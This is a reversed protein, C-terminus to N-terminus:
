RSARCRSVPLPSCDQGHFTAQQTHAEVIHVPFVPAEGEVAVGTCVTQPIRDVAAAHQEWGPQQLGSCPVDNHIAPLPQGREALQGGVTAVAQNEGFRGVAGPQQQPADLGPQESRREVRRFLRLNNCLQRLNQGFLLDQCLIKGEQLKGRSGIRDLLPRAQRSLIFAEQLRDRRIPNTFARGEFQDVPFHFDRPM